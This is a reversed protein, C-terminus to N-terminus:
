FLRDVSEDNNKERTCIRFSFRMLRDARKETLPGLWKKLTKRIYVVIFLRHVLIHRFVLTGPFLSLTVNVTPLMNENRTVKEICKM